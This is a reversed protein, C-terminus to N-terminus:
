PRTMPVSEKVRVHTHPPVQGRSEGDTMFEGVLAGGRGEGDTMDGGQFFIASFNERGNRIIGLNEILCSGM